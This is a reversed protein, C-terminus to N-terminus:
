LLVFAALHRCFRALCGPLLLDARTGEVRVHGDPSFQDGIQVTTYVNGEIDTIQNDSFNTTFSVNPGYQLDESNTAYARVYYTTNATLGTLSSTFSGTGSGDTTCTDATTPDQSTGWCVGRVTIANGGDDSINGGSTATTTTVASVSATTVAIAPTRFLDATNADTNKPRRWKTGGDRDWEFGIAQGM